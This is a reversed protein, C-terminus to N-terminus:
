LEPAQWFVAPLLLSRASSSSLGSSAAAAVHSLRLGPQLQLLGGSGILWCAQLNNFRLTVGACGALSLRRSIVLQEGRSRCHQPQLQIDQLVSISHVAPDALADRLSASDYAVADPTSSDDFCSSVDVVARCRTVEQLGTAWDQLRWTSSSGALQAEQARKTAQLQQADLRSSNNSFPQHLTPGSVNFVVQDYNISGGTSVFAPVPGSGVRSTPLSSVALTLSSLALRGPAAVELLREGAQHLDLSAGPAGQLVVARGICLTSPWNQKTVRVTSVLHISEVTSNILAKQLQGSDEVRLAASACALLLALLVASNLLARMTWGADNWCHDFSRKVLLLVWGRSDVATQSSPM